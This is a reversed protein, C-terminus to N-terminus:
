KLSDNPVAEAAHAQLYALLSAGKQIKYVARFAATPRANDLMAM